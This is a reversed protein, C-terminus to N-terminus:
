VHNNSAIIHILIVVKRAKAENLNNMLNFFISSRNDDQNLEPILKKREKDYYNCHVLLHFLDNRKSCLHCFEENIVLKNKKFILRNVYSNLM